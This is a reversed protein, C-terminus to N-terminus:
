ARQLDDGQPALSLKPDRQFEAAFFDIAARTKPPLHRRTTYVATIPRPPPEFGSLLCRLLGRDIENEVFHWIPMYGIGMGQLVAARIAETSNMRLPGAIPVDILGKETQFSWSQGAAHGGYILCRHETLDEPRSPTGYRALYAPTAVISRRSQGIKRGVLSLDTVTGVRLSLDIGEEVLDVFGDQMVLDIEIEPHLAMFSPLRPIVHLRGFVGACALRLRGTARGKRRGVASEAQSAADLAARALDYFVRGDDTLKLARTTRQFLVTGLHDELAAIQRSITPQSTNREAAVASFSGAEACRLFTDFLALRDNM